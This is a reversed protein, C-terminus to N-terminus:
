IYGIGWRGEHCTCDEEDEGCNPCADPNQKMPDDDHLHDLKKKIDEGLIDDFMIKEKLITLCALISSADGVRKTPTNVM